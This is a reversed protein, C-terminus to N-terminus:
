DTTVDPGAEPAAEAAADQPPAGADADCANLLRSFRKLGEVYEDSCETVVAHATDPAFTITTLQGAEAAYPQNTVWLTGGRKQAQDVCTEGGVPTMVVAYALDSGIIVERSSTRGTPGIPDTFGYNLFSAEVICTDLGNQITATPVGDGSSCAAALLGMALMVKLGRQEM